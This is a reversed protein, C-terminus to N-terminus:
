GSSNGGVVHGRPDAEPLRNTRQQLDDANHHQHLQDGTRRGREQRYVQNVHVADGRGGRRHHEAHHAATADHAAQDAAPQGIAPVALVHDQQRHHDGAQHQQPQGIQGVAGGRHHQHPKEARRHVHAAGGHLDVQHVAHRGPHPGGNETDVKAQAHLPHAQRLRHRAM